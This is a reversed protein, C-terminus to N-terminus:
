SSVIDSEHASSSDLERVKWGEVEEEEEVVVFDFGVGARVVQVRSM